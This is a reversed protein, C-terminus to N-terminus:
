SEARERWNTNGRTASDIHVPKHYPAISSFCIVELVIETLDTKRFAKQLDESKAVEGKSVNM